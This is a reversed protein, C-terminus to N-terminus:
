TTPNFSAYSCIYPIQQFKAMDEKSLTVWAEIGEGDKTDILIAGQNLKLTTAVWIPKEWGFDIEYFPFRCWSSFGFAVKMLNPNEAVQKLFEFYKGGEHIKRVYDDKVIGISEHIKGALNNYDVRNENELCNEVHYINGLSLEPLPPILRKRLNVAILATNVNMIEIIAGWIVGAVTEVRSPRSLCGLSSRNGVKERLAALESRHFVFSKIMTNSLEDKKPFMNWLFGQAKQPPFISTCDYIIGEINTTAEESSAVAAWTTAFSAAASGDALQHWICISIAMGGCDFHNVQVGLIEENSNMEQSNFPLLKELEEVQPDQLIMSIQGAVHAETYSAGEDNCDISYNNKIRGALPYYLTLTESLSKKLPDSKEKFSTQPTSSYFLIIPIYLPPALQDLLSLKYNKLHQPTSSSPKIIEKVMIHVEM